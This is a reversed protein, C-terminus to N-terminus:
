GYSTSSFDIENDRAHMAAELEIARGLSLADKARDTIRVRGNQAMHSTPLQQSAWAVLYVNGAYKSGTGIMINCDLDIRIRPAEIEVPAPMSHREIQAARHADIGIRM